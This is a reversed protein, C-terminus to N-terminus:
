KSENITKIDDSVITDICERFLKWKRSNLRLGLSNAAILADSFPIGTRRNMEMGVTTRTWQSQCIKFWELVITEELTLYPMPYVCAKNLEGCEYKGTKAKNM